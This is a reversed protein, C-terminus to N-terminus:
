HNVAPRRRRWVVIAALATLGGSTDILVDTLAATRSPVFTQHFEDAAALAALLLCGTVLRGRHLPRHSDMLARALLCALIAYETVHASKRIVAHLWNVTEPEMRPFLWVIWPEIMQATHESSFQETSAWFVLAMWIAVPGFRWILSRRGKGASAPAPDQTQNLGLLVTAADGGPQRTEHPRRQTGYAM